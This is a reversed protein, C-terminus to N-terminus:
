VLSTLRRWHPASSGAVVGADPTRAEAPVAHVDARRPAAAGGGEPVHDTARDTDRGTGIIEAEEISDFNARSEGCRAKPM